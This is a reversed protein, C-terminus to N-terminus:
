MAPVGQFGSSRWIMTLLEYFKRKFQPYTLTGVLIFAQLQGKPADIYNLIQNFETSDIHGSGDKDIFNFIKKGIYNDDDDPSASFSRYSYYFRSWDISKGDGFIHIILRPFSRLEPKSSSLYNALERADLLGNGNEDIRRFDAAASAYEQASLPRLDFPYSM